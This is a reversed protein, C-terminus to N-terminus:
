TNVKDKIQFHEAFRGFLDEQNKFCSKGLVYTARSYGHSRYPNEYEYSSKYYVELMIEDTNLAYSIGIVRNLNVLISGDENHHVCWVYDGKKVDCNFKYEM